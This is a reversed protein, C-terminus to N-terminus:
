VKKAATKRPRGAAKKAPQAKKEAPAAAKPQEPVPEEAKPVVVNAKALAEQVKQAVLADVDVEVTAPKPIVRIASLMQGKNLEARRGEVVAQVRSSIDVQGKNMLVRMRGYIRDITLLDKVAVIKEMIETSPSTLYDDIDREFICSEEWKPLRLAKYIEERENEDFEIMGNRIVPSHANIYELETMTVTEMGPMGDSRGSLLFSRDKTSLALAPLGWNYIKINLADLVIMGKMLPPQSEGVGKM